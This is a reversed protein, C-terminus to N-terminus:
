PMEVGEPVETGEPIDYQDEVDEPIEQTGESSMGQMMMSSIVEQLTKANKPKEIEVTKGYDSFFFEGNVMIPEAQATEDIAQPDIEKEFAVKRLLYDSRGIWLEAELPGAKSFFEDLDKRIQQKDVPESDESLESLEKMLSPLTEKVGEEDVSVLYHYTNVGKVKEDEFEEEVNIMKEIDANRIIERIEEPDIEEMETTEETQETDVKIWQDKFQDLNQVPLMPAAPIKTAKFYATDNFARANAAASFEMGETAFSVDVTMESKPNEPDSNDSDGKMTLAFSGEEMEAEATGEFHGSDVNRQKKAMKEVVESSSMGFPNWSPNWTGTGLAVGVGLLAILVVGGLIKASSNM